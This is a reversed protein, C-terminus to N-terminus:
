HGLCTGSHGGGVGTRRLGVPLFDLAWGQAGRDVPHRAPHGPVQVRYVACARDFRRTPLCVAGAGRKSRKLRMLGSLLVKKWSSCASLRLVTPRIFTSPTKRGAAGRPCVIIIDNASAKITPLHEALRDKQEESRVPYANTEISGKIHVKAFLEAPCVDVIIMPSEADLRSKLEKATIYNYTGAFSSVTMGLVGIVMAALWVIRSGKM